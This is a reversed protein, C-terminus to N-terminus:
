ITAWLSRRKVGEGHGVYVPWNVLNLNDIVPILTFIASVIQPFVFSSFLYEKKRKLKGGSETYYM